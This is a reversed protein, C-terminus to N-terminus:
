SFDVLVFFAISFSWIEHVRIEWVGLSGFGKDRSVRMEWFGEEMGRDGLVWINGAWVKKM